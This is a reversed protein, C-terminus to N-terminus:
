SPLQLGAQEEAFRVADAFSPRQWAAGTACDIIVHESEAGRNTMGVPTIIFPNDEYRGEVYLDYEGSGPGEHASRNYIHTAEVVPRPGDTM